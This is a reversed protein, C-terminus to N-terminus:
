KYYSVREGEKEWTFKKSNYQSKLLSNINQVDKINSSFSQDQSFSSKRSGSNEKTEEM